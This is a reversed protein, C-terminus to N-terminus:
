EEEEDEEDVSNMLGKGRGTKKNKSSGVLSLEVGETGAGGTKSGWDDDEPELITWESMDHEDDDFITLLVPVVCLGYFIGLSIVLSIVRWWTLVFYSKCICMPLMALLSSFAGNWISIGVSELADRAKDHASSKKSHLFAHASHASFDVCLGVGVILMISTMQNFQLGFFHLSGLVIVEITMVSMLVLVTARVNALVVLCVLVVVSSIFAFNKMTDPVITALPEISFFYRTYLKADLNPAIEKLENRTKIMWQIEVPVNYERKWMFCNKSGIIQEKSEWRLFSYTISSGGMTDDHSFAELEDYFYDRRLFENEDFIEELKDPDSSYKAQVWLRFPKYWTFCQDRSSEACAKEEVELLEKQYMSYDADKAQLQVCVWNEEMIWPFYDHMVERGKHVYHDPPVMLFASYTISLSQAGIFGIMIAIATFILVGIKGWPHLVLDSMKLMLKKSYSKEEVFKALRPSSTGENSGESWFQGNGNGNSPSAVLENRSSGEHFFSTFSNARLRDVGGGGDGSGISSMSESSVSRGNADKHHMEYDSVKRNREGDPLEGPPAIGAGGISGPRKFCCLLDYRNDEQRRMDLVLCAVFFTIQFIFDIMVMTGAVKSFNAIAFINSNANSMFACFDTLSTLLISPGCRALGQKVRRKIEVEGYKGLEKETDYVAATIIFADDIGIGLTIYVACIHMATFATDMWLTLGIGAAVAMFVNVIGAISLSMHSDNDKRCFVHGVYVILIIIPGAMYPMDHILAGYIGSNIAAWSIVSTEIEENGQKLFWNDIISIDMESIMWFSSFFLGEVSYIEGSNPNREVGSVFLTQLNVDQRYCDTFTQKPDPDADFVEVSWDWCSGAGGEMYLKNDKWCVYQPFERAADIIIQMADRIYKLDEDMFNTSKATEPPRFFMFNNRECADNYWPSDEHEEDWESLHRLPHEYKKAEGVTAGATATAFSNMVKMNEELDNWGSSADFGYATLSTYKDAKSDSNHIKNQPTDYYDNDYYNSGFENEEENEGLRRNYQVGTPHLWFWDGWKRDQVVQADHPSFLVEPDTLMLFKSFGLCTILTFLVSCSLTLKPRGAVRYGIEGFFVEMKDNIFHSVRELASDHHVM